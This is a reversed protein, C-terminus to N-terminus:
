RSHFTLYYKLALGDLEREGGPGALILEVELPSLRFDHVVARKTSGAPANRILKPAHARLPLQPCTESVSARASKFLATSLPTFKM